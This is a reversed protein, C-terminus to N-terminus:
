LEDNRRWNKADHLQYMPNALGYKQKRKVWGPYCAAPTLLDYDYKDYITDGKCLVGAVGLLSLQIYAQLLTIESVDNASVWVQSPIDIGEKQYQELVAIVMSGSGICPDSVDTFGKEEIDKYVGEMDLCSVKAVLKSMNYPTFLQGKSKKEAMEIEMYQQGIFDQFPNKELEDTMIQSLRNLLEKQEDSLKELITTVEKQLHEIRNGAYWALHGGLVYIWSRWAEYVGLEAALKQFVQGWENVPEQKANKAM